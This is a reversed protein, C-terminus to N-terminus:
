LLSWKENKKNEHKASSELEKVSNDLEEFKFEKSKFTNEM